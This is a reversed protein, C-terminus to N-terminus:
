KRSLLEIRSLWYQQLAALQRPGAGDANQKDVIQELRSYTSAQHAAGVLLAATAITEDRSIAGDWKSLYRKLRREVTARDDCYSLPMALDVFPHAICADTWDYLFVGGQVTRWNDVNIDGHVLAQGIGLQEIKTAAADVPGSLEPALGAVEEALKGLARVELGLSQWHAEAGRTARHIEVVYDLVDGDGQCAEPFCRALWSHPFTAVVHPVSAGWRQALAQIVRPEHAFARPGTKLWLEGRNTAFRLLATLSTTREIQPEATQVVGNAQMWSDVDAVEQDFWGPRQWPAIATSGSSMKWYWGAPLTDCAGRLEVEVVHDSRVRLLSFQAGLEAELRRLVEGADSLSGDVVPPEGNPDVANAKGEPAWVLVSVRTAADGVRADTCGLPLSTVRM